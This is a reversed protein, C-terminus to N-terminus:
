HHPIQTILMLDYTWIENGGNYVLFIYLKSKSASSISGYDQQQKQTM